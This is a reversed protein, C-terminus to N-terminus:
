GIPTRLITLIDSGPTVDVDLLSGTSSRSRHSGNQSTTSGNRIRGAGQVTSDFNNNIFTDAALEPVPSLPGSLQRHSTFKVSGFAEKRAMSTSEGSFHRLPQAYGLLSRRSGQRQESVREQISTRSEEGQSNRSNESGSRKRQHSSFYNYQSGESSLLSSTSTDAAIQGQRDQMFEGDDDSDFNYGMVVDDM